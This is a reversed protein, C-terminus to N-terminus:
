QVLPDVTSTVDEFGKPGIAQYIITLLMLLTFAWMGWKLNNTSQVLSNLREDLRAESVEIKTLRREHDQVMGEIEINMKLYRKLNM